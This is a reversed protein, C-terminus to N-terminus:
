EITFGAINKLPRCKAALLQKLVLRCDREFAIYGVTIVHPTM